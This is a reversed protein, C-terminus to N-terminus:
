NSARVASDLLLFLNAVRTFDPSASKMDTFFTQVAARATDSALEKTITGVPDGDQDERFPSTWEEASQPPNLQVGDPLEYKGSEVRLAKALEDGKSFNSAKDWNMLLWSECLLRLAWLRETPAPALLAWQVKHIDGAENQEVWRQVRNPQAGSAPSFDDPKWMCIHIREHNSSGLASGGATSAIILHGKCRGDRFAEEWDVRKYKQHLFVVANESRIDADLAATLALSEDNVSSVTFLVGGSKLKEEWETPASSPVYNVVSKHHDRLFFHIPM